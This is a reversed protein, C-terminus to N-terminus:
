GCINMRTTPSINNALLKNRKAQKLRFGVEKVKKIVRVM